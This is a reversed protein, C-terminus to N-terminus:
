VRLTVFGDETQFEDEDEEEDFEYCETGFENNWFTSNTSNEKTILVCRDNSM